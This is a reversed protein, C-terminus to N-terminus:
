KLLEELEYIMENLKDVQKMMVDIQQTNSQVMETINTFDKNEENIKDSINENIKVTMDVVNSQKQQLEYVSKIAKASSKLLEILGRIGDVTDILAKNQELLQEVNENMYKSVETTGNQVRFVIDNVNNLSTKTSSALKGIEQAVVAFGRGSEGARAAEISANLSLLNIAEAIQNIIELTSGINAAETLLKDTVDLTNKTSESAKESINILNNMAQENAFSKDVLEISLSELEQVKQEMAKSSNELEMLNEKSESSRKLIDGSSELLSESIASLEETSASENQTTELLLISAESLKEALGNVKNLVGQVRSENKEMEDKKADALYRGALYATLITGLSCFFLSCIIIILDTVFLEDKVPLTNHGAFIWSLVLTVSLMSANTLTMKWDLFLGSLIIAYIFVGWWTRLPMLYSVINMQLLLVISYYVKGWKLWKSDLKGDKMCNRIFLLGIILYVITAGLQFLLSWWPVNKFLNLLKFGIFFLSSCLCSVTLLFIVGKYVKEMYVDIASIKNM